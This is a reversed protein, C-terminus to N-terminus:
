AQPPSGELGSPSEGRLRLPVRWYAVTPSGLLSSHSEGTLWQPIGWYAVTPGGLLATLPFFAWHPANQYRQAAVPSPASSLNGTSGCVNRSKKCFLRGCKRPYVASCKLSRRKMTIKRSHRRTLCKGRAPGCGHKM